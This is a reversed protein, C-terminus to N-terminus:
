ARAARRAPVHDLYDRGGDRSVVVAPIGAVICNAPVSRIVLANAAVVVNDGVVVEGLIKAGSGIFVNDGLQPRGRMTWDPGVTVDQNLTLNAGIRAADIFITSFNHIVLGQGIPTHPSIDIRSVWVLPLRLVRYAAVALTRRWGAPRAHCWYGLRYQAVALTGFQLGVKVFKNFFKDVLVYHAQKRAIDAKLETLV